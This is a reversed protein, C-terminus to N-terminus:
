DVYSNVWEECFVVATKRDFDTFGGHRPTREHFIGDFLRQVTVESALSSGQSDDVKGGMELNLEWCWRVGFNRGVRIMYVSLLDQFQQKLLGEAIM